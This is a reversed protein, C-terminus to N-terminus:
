QLVQGLTPHTYVDVPVPPLLLLLLLLLVLISRIDINPNGNTIMRNEINM